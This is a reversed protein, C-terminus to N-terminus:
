YLSHQAQSRKITDEDIRPWRALYDARTAEIQGQAEDFETGHDIIYGLATARNICSRVADFAKLSADLAFEVSKGYAQFDVPRNGLLTRQASVWATDYSSLHPDPPSM